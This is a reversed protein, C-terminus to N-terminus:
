NVKKQICLYDWDETGIWMAGRGLYPKLQPDHFNIEGKPIRIPGGIRRMEEIKAILEENTM